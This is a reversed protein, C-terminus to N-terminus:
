LNPSLPTSFPAGSKRLSPVAAGNVFFIDPLSDNDFDFIACGAGMTEIMEKTGAGGNHHVFHVGAADSDILEFSGVQSQSVIPSPAAFSGAMLICVFFERSRNILSALTKPWSMSKINWLTWFLDMLWSDLECSQWKECNLLQQPAKAWENMHLESSIATALIKRAMKLQPERRTSRRKNRVWSYSPRVLIGGLLLM